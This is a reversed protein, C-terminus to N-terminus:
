RLKRVESNNIVSNIQNLENETKIKVDPFHKELFHNLKLIIIEIQRNVKTWM